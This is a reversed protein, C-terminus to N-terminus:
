NFISEQKEFSPVTNNRAACFVGSRESGSDLDAVNSSPEKNISPVIWCKGEVKM